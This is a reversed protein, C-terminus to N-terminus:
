CNNNTFVLQGNSGWTATSTPLGSVTQRGSRSTMWTPAPWSGSITGDSRMTWINTQAPGPDTSALRVFAIRGNTGPYSAFASAAPWLGGLAAAALIIGIRASRTM